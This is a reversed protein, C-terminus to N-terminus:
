EFLKIGNQKMQSSTRFKYGGYPINKNYQFVAKSDGGNRLASLINKTFLSFVSFNYYFM